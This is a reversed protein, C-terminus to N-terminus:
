TCDDAGMHVKTFMIHINQSNMIMCGLHYCNVSYNVFSSAYWPANCKVEDRDNDHLFLVGTNPCSRKIKFFHTIQFPSSVSIINFNRVSILFFEKGMNLTYINQSLCM